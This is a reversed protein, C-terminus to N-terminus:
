VRIPDPSEVRNLLSSTGQMGPLSCIAPKQWWAASILSLRFPDNAFLVTHFKRMTKAHGRVPMRKPSAAQCRMWVTEVPRESHPTACDNGGRRLFEVFLAQLCFSEIRYESSRKHLYCRLPSVSHHMTSKARLM